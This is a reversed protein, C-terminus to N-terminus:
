ARIHLKILLKQTHNTELVISPRLSGVGYTLNGSISRLVHWKLLDFDLSISSIQREHISALLGALIFNLVMSVIGLTLPIGWFYGM